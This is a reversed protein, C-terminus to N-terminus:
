DNGTSSKAPQQRSEHATGCGCVRPAMEPGCCAPKTDDGCCSSLLVTDCCADPSPTAATSTNALTSENM